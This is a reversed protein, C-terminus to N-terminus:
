ILGAVVSAAGTLAVLVLVLNFFRESDLRRFALAGLAYGAVVLAFLLAIAGRM